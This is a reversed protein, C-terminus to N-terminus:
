NALIDSDSLFRWEAMVDSLCYLVMGPQPLTDQSIQIYGNATLIKDIPQAPHTHPLPTRADTLRPDGEGVAIPNNLDAAAVSLKAIGAIEDTAPGINMAVGLIELDAEDYYQAKFLDAYKTVLAWTYHTGKSEDVDKSVRRLVRRYNTAVPNFNIWLVNLPLIHTDKPEELACFIVTVASLSTFSLRLIIPNEAALNRIDCLHEASDIFDAVKKEM